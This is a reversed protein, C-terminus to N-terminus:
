LKLKSDPDSIADEADEKTPFEPKVGCTESIGNMGDFVLNTDGKEMGECIQEFALDFSLKYDQFCQDWSDNMEKRYTRIAEKIKECIKEVKRREDQAMQLEDYSKMLEDYMIGTVVFGVMGGIFGGVYPVPILGKGIEGFLISGELTVAIRWIRKECEEGSIEDHLWQNITKASSIVITAVAMPANSKGIQRVMNLSSNQLVGGAATAVSTTVYGAAASEATTITTDKVAELKSKKGQLVDIFNQVGSLTFSIAAATKLGKIGAEHSLRGIDKATSMKPHTRAEMAESTTVKSPKVSQKVKKLKNIKGELKSALAENGSANAHNMQKQLDAIQEDAQKLVGQYYDKPVEIKANADYYKQYNKSLLKKLCEEPSSGVFKMQVGSGPIENDHADYKKLDYLPDNVHGKDDTRYTQHSKGKLISEANERATEKVEASFGAQQHLNNNEYDPNVKYKSIKKLSRKLEKGTENDKGVYAVIHEKVARAYLEATGANQFAAAGALNNRKEKKDKDMKEGM